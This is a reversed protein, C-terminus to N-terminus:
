EGSILAPPNRPSEGRHREVMHIRETIGLTHDPGVHAILIEAPALWPDEGPLQGRVAGTAAEALSEIVAPLVPRHTCVLASRGDKLLETITLGVREPENRFGQESLLPLVELEAPGIPPSGPRQAAQDLYPRLTQLCRAWPSSLVREPQWCALLGALDRAQRLGAGTLPRDAEEGPWNARGRAKAHRVVILPHTDLQGRGALALLEELPGFDGPRTLRERAQAPPLWEVQAIEDDAASRLGIDRPRGAWYNVTKDRGDPLVYSVSPLPVGLEVRVGTEEAVERVACEPLTEGADLKGKPWSWDGWRASRVLLLELGHGEAVTGPGTDPAGVVDPLEPAPRWCIAGAARV